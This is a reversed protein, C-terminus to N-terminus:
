FITFESLERRRSFGKEAVGTTQAMGEKQMSVAGSTERSEQKSRRKSASSGFLKASLTTAFNKLHNIASM